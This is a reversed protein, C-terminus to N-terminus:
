QWEVTLKLNTSRTGFARPSTIKFKLVGNAPLNKNENVITVITNPVLTVAGTGNEPLYTLEMNGDMQEMTMKSYFPSFIQDDWMRVSWDYEITFEPDIIKVMRPVNFIMKTEGWKQTQNLRFRTTSVKGGGYYFKVFAVGLLDSPVPVVTPNIATGDKWWTLKLKIQDIKIRKYSPNYAQFGAMGKYKVESECTLSYTYRGTDYSPPVSECSVADDLPVGPGSTHTITITAAPEATGTVSLEGKYVSNTDGNFTITEPVM